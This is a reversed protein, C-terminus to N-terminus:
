YMLTIASAVDLPKQDVFFSLDDARTAALAEFM